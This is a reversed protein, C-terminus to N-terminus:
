SKRSTFFSIRELAGTESFFEKNKLFKMLIWFLFSGLFADYVGKPFFIAKWPYPISSGTLSLNLFTFILFSHFLSFIFLVISNFFLRLNLLTKRIMGATLGLLIGSEMQVLGTGGSLGDSILGVIGGVLAGFANGFLLGTFYIVLFGLDPKIDGISFYDAMLGQLPITIMLILAYIWVKM